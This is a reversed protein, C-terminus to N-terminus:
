KRYAASNTEAHAIVSGALNVDQFEAQNGESQQPQYGSVPDHLYWWARYQYLLHPCGAVGILRAAKVEDGLGVKSPLITAKIAKRTKAM